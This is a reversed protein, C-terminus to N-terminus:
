AKTQECIYSLKKRAKKWIDSNWDSKKLNSIYIEFEKEIAKFFLSADITKSESHYLQKEQRTIHWGGTTEAQHLLGCRIHTYFDDPINKLNDLHISDDFFLQFSKKSQNKSNKWGQKFTELSEIMLCAIALMSFGHKNKNDKFPNIYREYFREYIFDSIKLTDKNSEYTRYKEVSVTSSIKSKNPM